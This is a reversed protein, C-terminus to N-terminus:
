QSLNAIAYVSKACRLPIIIISVRCIISSQGAVFRYSAPCDYKILTSESAPKVCTTPASVQCGRMSMLIWLCTIIMLCTFVTAFVSRGRTDTIRAAIGGKPLAIYKKEAKRMDTIGYILIM